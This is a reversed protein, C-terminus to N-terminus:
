FGAYILDVQLYGAGYAGFILIAFILGYYISWRVPLRLKPLQEWLLMGREHFHGVLAVILCGVGIVLYDNGDLGLGLLTGDFFQEARFGRLMDFFMRLGQSLGAARFFLEGVVIIVWTKLIQLRTWLWSGADIHCAKLMRERVPEVAIGMLIIVFYYMGYFLYSWRAGHWLGNCLWVPFLACASTVLKTLYPGAHKRGFRNWKKMLSSVSVPYFIYTRFWVGLTIHWRRWFEAANRSCFPQRFNEPLCIGFMRGSGLIIDMSGSFEMYLQITYCIAAMAVAAGGYSKNGDYVARVLLYARDAIVMKKFLGWLIRLSGALLNEERIPKGAMLAEATDSYRCIPGEMIQPFFALFLALKGPHKEHAVKGWYVDVMYGIAQLTYFSIGLPLAWNVVPFRFDAATHALLLNMDSAFWPSYKLIVLVGLLGVIGVTLLRREKKRCKKNTRKEKLVTLGYGMGYTWATTGILFLILQRSILFFFVYSYGLLVKWRWKQPAMQYSILVLPLFLFLYLSNHYAM